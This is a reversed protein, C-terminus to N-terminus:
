GTLRAEDLRRMLASKSGHELRFGQLREMFDEDSGAEMALDRLDLLREVAEKYAAANRLGALNDVQHWLEKERGRLSALYAQRRKAAEAAERAEKAAREAAEKAKREGRLANACEQLEAVTRREGSGAGAGTAPNLEREIRQRLAALSYARDNLILSNLWADKEAGSQEAVWRAVEAPGIDISQLPASTEAAAAILDVSIRLFDALSRHAADLEALGPPVPPERFDDELRGAAAEALWGLYLSRYDGRMLGARVGVLSSLWGSGQEWDPEETESTFSLVVYEPTQWGEIGDELLYESVERWDLLKRPLRLMFWHTGWNAVHLFADFYREMWKRPNGKFDGWNYENSFRTPTIEARTSYRRLEEMEDPTLAHDIAQFEYYQYESM